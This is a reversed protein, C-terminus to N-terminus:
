HERQMLAAAFIEFSSTNLGNEKLKALSNLAKSYFQESVQEAERRIGLENFINTVRLVKEDSATRSTYWTSLEAALRSDAKEFAKLSLFTKKNALIDGGIQKGFKQPDGYVDLIDDMLQFAIGLNCGFHYLFGANETSAKGCLAGMQLGAGLLVATKLRIMELYESITVDERKEFNMDYQQGECVEVAAKFFVNLVDRLSEAPANSILRCAEAFMVDGSLIAINTNWRSHVTPKGRRLPAEDMIDDHLLTFNHFVELGLAPMLAVEPRAGFMQAAMLLLRPRLRKGGLSLTYRIPEYLEAPSAPFNLQDIAGSILADLDSEEIM